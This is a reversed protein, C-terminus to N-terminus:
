AVCGAMSSGGKTKNDHAVRMVALHAANYLTCADPDFRMVLEGGRKQAFREITGGDKCSGLWVIDDGDYMQEGVASTIRRDGSSGPDSTNLSKRTWLSARDTADATKRSM